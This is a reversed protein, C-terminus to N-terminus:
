LTTDSHMVQSGQRQIEAIKEKIVPLLRDYSAQLLVESSVYDDKVQQVAQKQNWGVAKTSEMNKHLRFKFGKVLPDRKKYEPSFAGEGCLKFTLTPQQEKLTWIDCLTAL